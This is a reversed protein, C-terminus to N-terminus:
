LRGHDCRKFTGRDKLSNDKGGEGKYCNKKQKFMGVGLAQLNRKSIPSMAKKLHLKLHLPVIDPANLTSAITKL